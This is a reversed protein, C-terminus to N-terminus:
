IVLLTLMIFLFLIMIWLQRMWNENKRRKHDIVSAQAAAFLFMSIFVGTNREIYGSQYCWGIIIIGIIAIMSAKREQLM